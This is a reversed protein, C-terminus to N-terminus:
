RIQLTVRGDPSKVIISRGQRVVRALPQDHRDHIAVETGECVVRGAYRGARDYISGRREPLIGCMAAAALALEIM